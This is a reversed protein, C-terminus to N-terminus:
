EFTFIVLSHAPLSVVEEIIDYQMQVPVVRNETGIDNFDDPTKGSMVVATLKEPIKVKMGKFDPRFNLTQDPSKNVVALVFRTKSDNCTLIADIAPTSQNGKTLSESSIEIPIVNKELKNAYLSFVHYTTRKVIGKPHVYIAGRANIIPSFCAIEVDRANRMCANLFCASFLADAMTYTSNIDNKDRAKYDMDKRFDGLVPHHWGRLNWEDFAIKIKGRFGTEDLIGITRKIDEEPSTTRMMCDIYPSVNNVAWLPDWYGHISVYDLLYGAEKLLPVTWNNNAVAAAFLKLDPTVARMMKSSERVLGGWETITKAGMEYDGYNENGVSWYKVRYPDKNGNERRMLAYKGINLNCYEVWDSMEEPTGTGANTCIYPEAGISHCWRIYEDTGFTNPEEVKWAKNYTPIRKQGVGDLWHYSSVFCGGPWRVIPVKLERLAEIVDKRFGDRDSLKSGPDFIGGYIQRHFHEIFQGFLMRNYLISEADQKITFTNIGSTRAPTSKDNQAPSDIPFTAFCVTSLLFNFLIQKFFLMLTM